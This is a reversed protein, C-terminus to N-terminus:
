NDVDDDGDGSNKEVSEDENDDGSFLLLWECELAHKLFRVNLISINPYNSHSFVRYPIISLFSFAFDALCICFFSSLLHQFSFVRSM